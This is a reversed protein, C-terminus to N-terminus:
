IRRSSGLWFSERVLRKKIKGSEERPLDNRIEIHKPRKYGPLRGNLERRIDDVTLKASSNLEIMAGLAEGFEEDPIGFVVSDSVGPLSLLVGEIEAPYINVGGSIVMDRKRDCIYLFGEEDLYGVDGTAILNGRQLENRAEPRNLYTFDSYYKNAAYIEGIENPALDNGAEDVISIAVGEVARGVTGPHFLWASSTSFTIPGHETSGYYENLIPGIWDIM